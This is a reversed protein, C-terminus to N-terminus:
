KVERRQFVALGVAATVAVWGLGIAWNRVMLDWTLADQYQGFQSSPLISLVLSAISRIPELQIMSLLALVGTGVTITLFVMIVALMESRLTMLLAVALGLTGMWLPLSAAAVFALIGLNARIMEPNSHGTLLWCGGLYHSFLVACFLLSVVVASCLKGLYVRKRPIGFSIENKLTGSKYPDSIVLDALIVALYSGVPMTTTMLAVMDSFERSGTWVLAFLSELVLMVAFFIWTYKRRCVKYLEAKIYNLVAAM